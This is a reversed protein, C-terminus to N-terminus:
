FDGYQRVMNIRLQELPMIEQNSKGTELLTKNIRGLEYICNRLFQDKILSELWFISVSRNGATIKNVKHLLGTSYILAKGSKLKYKEEKNNNILVLEGGTYESPDNLFVTMSYHTLVDHIQLEDVHWDYFAGNNYSVVMPPTIKKVSLLSSITINKSISNSLIECIKKYEETNQNLVETIKVDSNAGSSLKGPAYSSTKLFNQISQIEYDQLLEIELIM